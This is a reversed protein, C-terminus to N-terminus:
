AQGVCAQELLADTEALAPAAGLRDFVEHAETLYPVAEPARGQRILCRGRKARVRGPATSEV